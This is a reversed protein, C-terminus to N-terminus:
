KTNGRKSFETSLGTIGSNAKDKQISQDQTGPDIFCYLGNNENVKQQHNKASPLPSNVYFMENSREM